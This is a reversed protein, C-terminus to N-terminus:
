STLIRIDDTQPPMLAVNMDTRWRRSGIPANSGLSERGLKSRTCCVMRGMGFLLKSVERFQAYGPLLKQIVWFPMHLGIAAMLPFHKLLMFKRVFLETSELFLPHQESQVLGLERDFLHPM